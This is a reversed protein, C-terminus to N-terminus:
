FNKYQIENIIYKKICFSTDVNVVDNKSKLILARALPSQISIKNDKIDAEDEGVIQYNVNENKSLDTLFVTAGFLVKNKDKNDSIDVIQMNPIREEIFKIEKELFLQENRAAHYEANEKLDGYERAKKIEDLIRPRDVKKLNELKKILNNFGSKTIPIRKM